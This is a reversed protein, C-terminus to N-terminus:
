PVLSSGREEDGLALRLSIRGGRNGVKDTKGLSASRLCTVKTFRLTKMQFPDPATPPTARDRLKRGVQFPLAEIWM